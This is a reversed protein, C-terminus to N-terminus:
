GSCITRTWSWPRGSCSGPTTPGASPSRSGPMWNSAMRRWGCRIPGPVEIAGGAANVWGFEAFYPMPGGAPSLLVIEESGGVEQLYGLLTLDDLRLGQLAISGALRGRDHNPNVPFRASEALVESRDAPVQLVPVPLADPGPRGDEDTATPPPPPPETPFLAQFVFLVVISLVIALLLNKQDTM